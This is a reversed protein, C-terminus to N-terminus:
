HVGSSIDLRCSLDGARCTAECKVRHSGRDPILLRRWRRADRTVPVKSERSAANTEQEGNDTERGRVAAAQVEVTVADHGRRRLEEVVPFPFNENAYLRAM